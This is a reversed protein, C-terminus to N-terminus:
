GNKMERNEIRLERYERPTIGTLRKFYKCFFSDIPFDLLDAIQSIQLTSHRLLVKVEMVTARNIWEKAAVGSVQKILTGLYRPTLHLRDAYYELHRQRGNSQNVLRIFSDFLEREHTQQKEITATYKEYLTSFYHILAAMLNKVTENNSEAQHVIEWLLSFIKRYMTIEDVTPIFMEGQMRILLPSPIQGRMITNLLETTITFGELNLDDSCREVQMISDSGIFVLMGQTVHSPQLNLIVDAEGSKIYGIRMDDFRMPIGTEFINKLVRVMNKVMAFDHGLFSTFHPDHMNKEVLERFLSFSIRQPQKDIM